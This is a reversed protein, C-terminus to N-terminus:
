ATRFRSSASIRDIVGNAMMECDIELAALDLVADAVRRRLIAEARGDCGDAQQAELARLAMLFAESMAHTAQDDFFGSDPCKHQAM